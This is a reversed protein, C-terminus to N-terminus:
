GDLFLPLNGLCLRFTAEGFMTLGNRCNDMLTPIPIQCIKHDSLLPSGQLLDYCRNTVGCEWLLLSYYSDSYSYLKCFFLQVFNYRGRVLVDCECWTEPGSEKRRGVKKQLVSVNNWLRADLCWISHPKYSVLGSTAPLDVADADRRRQRKEWHLIIIFLCFILAAYGSYARGM